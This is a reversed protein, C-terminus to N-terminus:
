ALSKLELPQGVRRRRNAPGGDKRQAHRNKYWWDGALVGAVLLAILVAKPPRKM